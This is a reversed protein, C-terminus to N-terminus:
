ILLSLHCARDKLLQRADFMRSEFARKSMRDCKENSYVDSMLQKLETPIQTGNENFKSLLNGLVRRRKFRRHLIGQDYSGKAADVVVVQDMPHSDIDTPQSHFGPLPFQAGVKAREADRLLSHDAGM